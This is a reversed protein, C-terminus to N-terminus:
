TFVLWSSLPRHVRAVVPAAQVKAKQIGSVRFAIGAKFPLAVTLLVVAGSPHRLDATETIELAGLAEVADEAACGLLRCVAPLYRVPIEIDTRIM